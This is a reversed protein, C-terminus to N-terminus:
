AKRANPDLAKDRYMEADACTLLHDMSCTTNPRWVGGVAMRVQRAALEEKLHDMLHPLEEHAIGTCLVLFEDGGMRFVQEDSFVQRLGKAARVLLDDGAQHGQTDNLRKLGSVDCYILGISEAPKLEKM